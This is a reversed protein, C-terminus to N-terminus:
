FNYIGTLFWDLDGDGDFDAVASGMGNEDSIITTDTTRTYSGMINMYTQSTKFDATMLICLWGDANVDAFSPSFTFDNANVLSVLGKSSDKASFRM